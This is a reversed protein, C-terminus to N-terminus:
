PISADEVSAAASVVGHCYGRINDLSIVCCQEYSSKFKARMQRLSFEEPKVSSCWRPSIMNVPLSMAGQLLSGRM